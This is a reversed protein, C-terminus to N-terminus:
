TPVSSIRLQFTVPVVLGSCIKTVGIGFMRRAKVVGLEM